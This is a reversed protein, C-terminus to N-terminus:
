GTKAGHIEKAFVFTVLLLLIGIIGYQWGLKDFFPFKKIIFPVLICIALGLTVISLQKVAYEIKIRELMFIGIMILMIM